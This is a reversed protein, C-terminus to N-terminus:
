ISQAMTHTGTHFGHCQASSAIQLLDMIDTRSMVYMVENKGGVVLPYEAHKGLTRQM